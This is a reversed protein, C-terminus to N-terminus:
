RSHSNKRGTYADKLAKRRAKPGMDETVISYSGEPLYKAAEQCHKKGACTILVGNRNKTIEMVKLM